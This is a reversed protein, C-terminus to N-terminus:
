HSRMSSPRFGGPRRSLVVFRESYEFYVADYTNNFQARWSGLGGSRGAADSDDPFPKITNRDHRGDNWAASRILSRPIDHCYAKRKLM